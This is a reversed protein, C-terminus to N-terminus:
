FLEYNLSISFSQRFQKKVNYINNCSFDACYPYQLYRVASFSYLNGPTIFEENFLNVYSFQARTNIRLRPLLFYTYNLNFYTQFVNGDLGLVETSANNTSSLSVNISTGLSFDLRNRTNPFYGLEYEMGIVTKPESFEKEFPTIVDTLMGKSFGAFAGANFSRQLYQNIPRSGTFEFGILLSFLTANTSNFINPKDNNYFLGPIVSFNFRYGSGRLVSAGYIWQDNLHAFYSIDKDSIIGSETLYQDLQELEFIRRLRFDFVRRSRINAIADAFAAVDDANLTKTLKGQEKLKRLIFLAQQAFSVNEIRGVGVRLPSILQISRQSSRTDSSVDKIEDGRLSTSFQNSWEAFKKGSQYKRITTNFNIQNNWSFLRGSLASSQDDSYSMFNSTSFSYSNQWKRSTHFGLYNFRLNGSISTRDNIFQNNGDKGSLNNDQNLNVGMILQHYRIDPVEYTSLDYTDIQGLVLSPLSLIILSLTFLTTKAKM